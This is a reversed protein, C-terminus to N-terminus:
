SHLAMAPPVQDDELNNFIEFLAGHQNVCHIPAPRCYKAALLLQKTFVNRQIMLAAEKGESYTRLFRANKYLVIEGIMCGPDLRLLHELKHIWTSCEDDGNRASPLVSQVHWPHIGLSPIRFKSKSAHELCNEWDHVDVACSMIAVYCDDNGHNSPEAEENQLASLSYVPSFIETSLAQKDL